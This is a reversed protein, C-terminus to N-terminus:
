ILDEYLSNIIYKSESNKIITIPNLQKNIAIYGRDSIDDLVELTTEYDFGFGKNWKLEKIILDISIEMQNEYYMEWDKILTYAYINVAEFKAMCRKIVIENGRSYQIIDLSSFDGTSYMGKLPGIELSKGFYIKGKEEVVRLDTKEDYTYPFERFLFSWQPAGIENHTIYYHLLLKTIDDMMFRDEDYVVEGLKKLSLKYKGGELISNILGMYELYKIHPVVKGTSEGTPIGTINSIEIKNGQFEKKALQLIKSLYVLQPQFTNHFLLSKDNNIM